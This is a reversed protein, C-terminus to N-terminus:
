VVGEGAPLCTPSVGSLEGCEGSDIDLLNGRLSMLIDLSDTLYYSDINEYTGNQQSTEVFIYFLAVSHQKFQISTTQVDSRCEHNESKLKVLFNM